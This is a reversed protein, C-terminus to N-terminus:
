LDNYKITHVGERLIPVTIFTIIIKNICVHQISHILFGIKIIFM